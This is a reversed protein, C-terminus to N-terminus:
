RLGPIQIGSASGAAAAWPNTQGPSTSWMGTTASSVRGMFDIWTRATDNNMQNNANQYQMLPNMFNQMGNYGAALQQLYNSGVSQSYQRSALQQALAQNMLGGQTGMLNNYGTLGIGLNQGQTGLLENMLNGGQFRQTFDQNNLSMGSALRQLAQTDAGLGMGSAMQERQAAVRAFEPLSALGATARTNQVQELSKLLDSYSNMRQNALAQGTGLMDSGQGFLQVQLGQQGLRARNMADAEARIAQDEFESLGENQIGSSVVAGPGGGRALAQRKFTEAAARAGGAAEDRAMGVVDDFELLPSESTIGMGRATQYDSAQNAGQRALGRLAEDQGQASIRTVGREQAAQLAPQMANWLQDNWGSGQLTQEAMQKLGETYATNGRNSIFEDGVQFMSNYPNNMANSAFGMSQELQPSWANGAIYQSMLDATPSMGGARGQMERGGLMIEWPINQDIGEPSLFRYVQNGYDRWNDGQTYMAGSWPEEESPLRWLQDGANTAQQAMYPRLFDLMANTNGAGMDQLDKMWNLVNIGFDQSWRQSNRQQFGGFINLGLGILSGIAASTAM